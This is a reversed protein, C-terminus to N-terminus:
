GSEGRGWRILRATLQQGLVALDETALYDNAREDFLLMARPPIESDGEELRLLLPLRPLAMVIFSGAERASRAQLRRQILQTFLSRKKGFFEELPAPCRKLFAANFSDGGWLHRFPIWKGAPPKGTANTLYHILIIATATTAKKGSDYSFVEGAPWSIRYIQGLYPLILERWSLPPYLALAAGSFRAIEMSNRGAYERRAQELVASYNDSIKRWGKRELTILKSVM